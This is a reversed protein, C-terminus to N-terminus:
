GHEARELFYEMPPPGFVVRFHFEVLSLGQVERRLTRETVVSRVFASTRLIEVYAAFSQNDMAVGRLQLVGNRDLHFTEFWIREEPLLSILADIYRVPLTQISRIETIIEIRSEIAQLENEMRRVRAVEAMLARNEAERAEHVRELENVESSIWLHSLLIIGGVLVFALGLVGLDLRLTSLRPRKELPLLNIRIM